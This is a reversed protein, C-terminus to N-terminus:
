RIKSKCNRLKSAYDIYKIRYVKANDVIDMGTKIYSDCVISVRYNQEKLVQVVNKICNVNATNEPVYKGMVFVIHKQM